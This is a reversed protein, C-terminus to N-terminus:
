LETMKKVDFEYTTLPKPCQELQNSELLCCIFYFFDLTRQACESSYLINSCKSKGSDFTQFKSIEDLSCESVQLGKFNLGLVLFGYVKSIGDLLCWSLWFHFKDHQFNQGSSVPFSSVKSILDKPTRSRRFRTGYRQRRPGEFHLGRLTRFATSRRFLLGSGAKRNRTGEIHFGEIHSDPVQREAEQALSGWLPIGLYATRDPNYNKNANGALSVLADMTNVDLYAPFVEFDYSRAFITDKIVPPLFNGIKRNTPTKSIPGSSTEAKKVKSISTWFENEAEKVCYPGDDNITDEMGMEGKVSLRVTPLTESLANKINGSLLCHLYEKIDEPLDVEVATNQAIMEFPGGCGNRKRSLSLSSTNYCRKASNFDDDIEYEHDVLSNIIEQKVHSDRTTSLAYHKMQKTAVTTFTLHQEAQLGRVKTTVKAEELNTHRLWRFSMFADM